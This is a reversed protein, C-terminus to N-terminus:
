HLSCIRAQSDQSLLKSYVGGSGMMLGAALGFFVGAGRYKQAIPFLICFFIVLMIAATFWINNGGTFIVNVQNLTYTSSSSSSNIGLIIMGIIIIVIGIIEKIAIPEKLYFYSFIVLIVLGVGMLPALLSIPAFALAPLYIYWSITALIFGTLWLSSKAFNKLNQGGSTEEIKPMRDVAKKELIQGINLAAQSLITLLVGIIIDVDM